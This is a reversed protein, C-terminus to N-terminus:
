QHSGSGLSRGALMDGADNSIRVSWFTFERRTRFCDAVLDRIGQRSETRAAELDPLESGDPDEIHDRLDNLHFFYRSM